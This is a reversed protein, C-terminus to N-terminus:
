QGSILSVAKNPNANAWELWQECKNRLQPKLWVVDRTNIWGNAKEMVKTNDEIEEIELPYFRKSYVKTGRSNQVIRTIKSECLEWTRVGDKDKPYLGGISDGVKMGM